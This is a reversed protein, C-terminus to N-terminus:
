SCVVVGHLDTAREFNQESLTVWVTFCLDEDADIVPIVINGLM